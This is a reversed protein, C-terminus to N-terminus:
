SDLEWGAALMLVIFLALTGGIIAATIGASRAVAVKRIELRTMEAFPYRRGSDAVLEDPRVEAVTAGAITGDRMVIRVQDGAQVEAPAVSGAPPAEGPIAVRTQVHCATLLGTLTVAIALRWGSRHQTRRAAM